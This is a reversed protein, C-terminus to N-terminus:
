VLEWHPLYLDKYFRPGTPGFWKSPAIVHKSKNSLWSAWWSFTSNAIIFYHFQQMLGITNIENEKKNDLIYINKSNLEPIEIIVSVWFSSDDSALIFIPNEVKLCMRKIAEKYYETQLPGHFNIIDQNRLYDTRRAHVVVIREKNELLPGYKNQITHLVDEDPKFLEKLEEQIFTDSFYKPSQLYGKLFIGNSPLPPILTYETAGIENWEELYHPINDVIYKTFKKLISNWYLPRGDDERKNKLIQLRGNHKRSYAYATALQFMQNGLGGMINVSVIPNDENKNYM